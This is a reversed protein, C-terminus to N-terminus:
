CNLALKFMYIAVPPQIEMHLIAGFHSELDGQTLSWLEAVLRCQVVPINVRWFYWPRTAKTPNRCFWRCTNEPVQSQVVLGCGLYRCKCNGVMNAKQWQALLLRHEFLGQRWFALIHFHRIFAINAQLFPYHPFGLSRTKNNPISMRGDTQIPELKWYWRVEFPTDVLLPLPPAAGYRSGKWLKLCIKWLAHLM